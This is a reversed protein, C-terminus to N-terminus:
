GATIRHSPVDYVPVVDLLDVRSAYEIDRDMGLEILREGHVTARLAGHITGHQDIAHHTADAILQASETPQAGLQVLRDVMLGAAYCDDASVQQHTGACIITTDAGKAHDCIARRNVISGLLVSRARDLMTLARTGNTTTLILDQGKVVESTYEFPSNGLKFGAPPLGDREGCLFSNQLASAIHRAHDVDRVPLITRAGSHLAAAITTTARLVDVVILTHSEVQVKPAHEPLLAVDVIPMIVQKLESCGSLEKGM